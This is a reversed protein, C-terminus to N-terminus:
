PLESVADVLDYIVKITPAAERMTTERDGDQPSKSDAM